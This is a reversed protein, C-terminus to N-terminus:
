STAPAAVVLKFGAAEFRRVRQVLDAVVGHLAPAIRQLRQHRMEDFPPPPLEM